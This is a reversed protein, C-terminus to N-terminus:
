WCRARAWIARRGCSRAWTARPTWGAAGASRAPTADIGTLETGAEAQTVIIDATPDYGVLDRAATEFTAGRLLDGPHAGPNAGPSTASTGFSPLIPPEPHAAVSATLVAAPVVLLGAAAYPRM